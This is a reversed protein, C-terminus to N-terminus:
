LHLAYTCVLPTYNLMHAYHEFTLKYTYLTLSMLVYVSFVDDICFYTSPFVYRLKIEEFAIRFRYFWLLGGSIM